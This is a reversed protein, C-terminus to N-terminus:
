NEQYYGAGLNDRAPPNTDWLAYCGCTCQVKPSPKHTTKKQKYKKTRWCCHNLASQTLFRYQRTKPNWGRRSLLRKEHKHVYNVFSRIWSQGGSPPDTQQGPVYAFGISSLSSHMRTKLHRLTQSLWGEWTETHWKCSNSPPVTALQCWHMCSSYYLTRTSLQLVSNRLLNLIIGHM